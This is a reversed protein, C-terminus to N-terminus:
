WCSSVTKLSKVRTEQKSQTEPLFRHEGSRRAQMRSRAEEAPTCCFLLLQTARWVNRVCVRVCVSLRCACACVCARPVLAPVDARDGPAVGKMGQLCAEGKTYVGSRCVQRRVLGRHAGPFLPLLPLRSSGHALSERGFGPHLAYLTLM